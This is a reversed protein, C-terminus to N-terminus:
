RTDAKSSIQKVHLKSLFKKKASPFEYSTMFDCNKSSNLIHKMKWIEVSESFPHFNSKFGPHFYFSWYFEMM